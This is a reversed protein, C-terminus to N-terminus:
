VEMLYSVVRSSIEKGWLDASVCSEFYVLVIKDLLCRRSLRAAFEQAM